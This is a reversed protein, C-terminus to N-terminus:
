ELPLGTRLTTLTLQEAHSPGWTVTVQV